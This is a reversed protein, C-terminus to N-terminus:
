KIRIAFSKDIEKKAICAQLNVIEPLILKLDPNVPTECPSIASQNSSPLFLYIGQCIDIEVSLILDTISTFYYTNNHARYV